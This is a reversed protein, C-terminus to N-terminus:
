SSGDTVFRVFSGYSGIFGRVTRLIRYRRPTKIQHIVHNVLLIATILQLLVEEYITMKPMICKMKRPLIYFLSYFIIHLIYIYMLSYTFISIVCCIKCHLWDIHEWTSRLTACGWFHEGRRRNQFRTAWCSLSTKREENVVMPSSKIGMLSCRQVCFGRTRRSPPDKFM